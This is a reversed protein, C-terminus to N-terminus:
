QLPRLSCDYDRDEVTHLNYVKGTRIDTFSLTGETLNHRAVKLTETDFSLTPRGMNSVCTRLGTEGEALDEESYECGSLMLIAIIVSVGNHLTKKGM